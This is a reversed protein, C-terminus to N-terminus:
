SNNKIIESYTYASSKITRKQTAYDVEILGFRPGYGHAWEFNDILSWYLYGIVSVNNNMAEAVEGLHEKIFDAREQDEETCIGNETILIPLKYVSYEKLVEYMGKPYIEWKLFNRKGFDQHHIYTCIDGFIKPPMIGAFHVFDRTYYNIGLFDLSRKVPLRTIAIGPAFCWGSLLSTIFLKNFYYHRIRTSLIDLLSKKRCPVFLLVHKAISVKPQTWGKEKYTKGIAKYALCHARLLTLFVKSASRFSQQGPPWTGEVHSAYTYVIPENLTIWYKVDEGFEEAVKEAFAAFAYESNRRTWGGKNYFWLPLTFHNLTVIPDINLARLTKIIHRYHDLAEKSFKGEEPEIRSWELSFRHANHRLQKALDLDSKFRNYQDCAKGSPNKTRGESEWRWWDNNKNDGEVQHSSTASGWLFGKPFRSKEEM